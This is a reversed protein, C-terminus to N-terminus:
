MAGAAERDEWWARKERMISEVRSIHTLHDREERLNGRTLDM